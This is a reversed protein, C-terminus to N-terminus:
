SPEANGIKEQLQNVLSMLQRVDRSRWDELYSVAEDFTCDGERYANLIGTPVLTFGCRLEVHCKKIHRAIRIRENIEHVVLELRQKDSIETKM